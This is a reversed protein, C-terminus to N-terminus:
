PRRRMYTPPSGTRQLVMDYFSRQKEKVNVSKSIHIVDILLQEGKMIHHSWLQGVNNAPNSHPHDRTSPILIELMSNFIKESHATRRIYLLNGESTYIFTLGGIIQRVDPLSEIRQIHQFLGMGRPPCWKEERPISVWELVRTTYESSQPFLYNWRDVIGDALIREIEPQLVDRNMM